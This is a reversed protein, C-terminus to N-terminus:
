ISETVKLTNRLNFNYISKKILEDYKFYKEQLKM